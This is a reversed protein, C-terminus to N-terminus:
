RKKQRKALPPVVTPAALAAKDGLESFDELSFPVEEEEM